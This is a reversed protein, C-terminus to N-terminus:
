TKVDGVGLPQFTTSKGWFVSPKFKPRTRLPYLVVGDECDAWAGLCGRSGARASGDRERGGRPMHVRQEGQRSCEARQGRREKARQFPVEKLFSGKARLRM